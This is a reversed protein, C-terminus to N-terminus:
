ASLASIHEARLHATWSASALQNLQDPNTLAMGTNAADILAQFARREEARAADSEKRTYAM